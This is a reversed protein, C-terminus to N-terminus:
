LEQEQQKGSEASEEEWTHVRGQVSIRPICPLPKEQTEQVILHDENASLIRMQSADQDSTVGFLDFAHAFREPSPILRVIGVSVTVAVFSSLLIKM